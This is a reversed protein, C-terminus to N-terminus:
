PIKHKSQTRDFYNRLKELESKNKLSEILQREITNFSQGPKPYIGLKVFDPHNLHFDKYDEYYEKKYIETDRKFFPTTKDWSHHGKQFLYNL